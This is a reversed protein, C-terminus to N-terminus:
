HTEEFVPAVPQEVATVVDSEEDQKERLVRQEEQRSHGNHDHQQEDQQQEQQQAQLLIQQQQLDQESTNEQNLHQNEGESFQEHQDDEKKGGGEGQQQQQKLQEERQQQVFEKRRREREVEREVRMQESLQQQEARGRMMKDDYEILFNEVNKKHLTFLDHDLPQINWHYKVYIGRLLDVFAHALHNAGINVVRMPEMYKFGASIMFPLEAEDFVEGAAMRQLVTCPDNMIEPSGAAQLAGNICAHREMRPNFDILYPRDDQGMWWWIAGFGTFNIARVFEATSREVKEDRITSYAVGYLETGTDVVSLHGAMIRGANAYIRFGMPRVHPKLRIEKQLFLRIKIDLDVYGIGDGRSYIKQLSHKLSDALDYPKAVGRGAESYEKKLYVSQNRGGLEDWAKGVQEFDPWINRLGDDEAVVAEQPAHPEHGLILKSLTPAPYVPPWPSSRGFVELAMSELGSRCSMEYLRSAAKAIMLVAISDGPFVYRPRMRLIADRLFLAGLEADSQLSWPFVAQRLMSSDFMDRQMMLATVRLNKLPLTLSPAFFPENHFGYPGFTIVDARISEEPMRFIIDMARFKFANYDPLMGRQFEEFAAWIAPSYSLIPKLEHWSAGPCHAESGTEDICHQLAEGILIALFPAGLDKHWDNSNEDALRVAWMMKRVLALAGDAQCQSWPNRTGNWFLPTAVRRLCTIYVVSNGMGPDLGLCHAVEPCLPGVSSRSASFYVAAVAVLLSLGAAAKM